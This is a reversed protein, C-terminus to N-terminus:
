PRTAAWAARLLTRLNILDSAPIARMAFLYVRRALKPDRHAGKNILKQVPNRPRALADQRSFRDHSVIFGLAKRYAAIGAELDWGDLLAPTTSEVLWEAARFAWGCGVAPTPDGTIAADGVLVLGPRPAPDRKVCPYDNTGIVKSVREASSLDPADPLSAMFRELAGARDAQFDALRAKAPFAVLMHLDDDTRVLIGVDPDLSWIQSEAPGRPVVGRYYAWLGFRENPAVDEAVGAFQAVPSRHGDAGVVLRAPIEEDGVRVGTVQGGSEMLGTVTRGLVLDVGPTGAALTRLLPDLKERRLSICEPLGPEPVAWGAATWRAIGGVAAGEDVMAQWLGTRRLMPQTGGLVFHGCLAKHTSINHHKDIIAVRLGARGYLIAATCGAVGAGVIVVDYTM